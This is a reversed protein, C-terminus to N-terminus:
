RGQKQKQLLENFITAVRGRRPEVVLKAVCSGAANWTATGTASHRIHVRYFLELKKNRTAERKM